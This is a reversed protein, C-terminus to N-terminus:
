IPWDGALLRPLLPHLIRYTVGWIMEDGVRLFPTRRPQPWTRFQLVQEDHSTPDALTEVALELVADVERPEPHWTTGAPVAALVPTVRFGTTRTEVPPLQEIVRVTAPDLGVEEQAERVATATPTPDHPEGKGGPFALQGGHAGFRSRRVMVVRLGGSGDRYLPILVAAEVPSPTANSPPPVPVHDRM